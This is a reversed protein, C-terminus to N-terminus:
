APLLVGRQVDLLLPILARSDAGHRDIIADVKSLEIGM